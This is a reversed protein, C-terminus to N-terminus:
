YDDDDVDEVLLFDDDEENVAADDSAEVEDDGDTQAAHADDAVEADGAGAGARDDLEEDDLEIVEDVEWDSDEYTESAAGVAADVEDDEEDEGDWGTFQPVFENQAADMEARRQRAREAQEKKADKLMERLQDAGGRARSRSKRREERAAHRKAVRAARRKEHDTSDSSTEQRPAQKAEKRRRKGKSAKKKSRPPEDRGEDDGRKDGRKRAKRGKRKGRTSNRGKSSKRGSATASASADATASARAARPTPLLMPPEVLPQFGENRSLTREIWRALQKFSLAGQFHAVSPLPQTVGAGLVSARVASPSAGADSLLGVADDFGPEGAVAGGFMSTLLAYRTVSEYDLATDGLLFVAEHDRLLAPSRLVSGSERVEHQRFLELQSGALDVGPWALPLDVGGNAGALASRCLSLRVRALPQAHDAETSKGAVDAEEAGAAHEASDGTGTAPPATCM